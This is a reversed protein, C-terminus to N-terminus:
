RKNLFFNAMNKEEFAYLSPDEGTFAKFNRIFHSQDYYGSLYVIEQWSTNGQQILQYIYNFRIIRCYYKPTLGIYKKFLRELQRAGVGTKAAIEEVKILGNTEFILDIAKTVPNEKITTLLGAFFEDFIHKAEEENTFPIVKQKLEELKEIKLTALDVAENTYLHMDVNFLQTFAAPKLKVAIMGVPGTNKLYFFQSIQGAFLYKTQQHWVGDINIQYPNRYHFILETFGDPIVKQAEPEANDNEILWYCEILHKLSSLSEIRKFKM